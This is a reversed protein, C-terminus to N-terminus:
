HTRNGTEAHFASGSSRKPKAKISLSKRNKHKKHVVTDCRRHEYQLMRVHIDASSTLSQTVQKKYMRRLPLTEVALGIIM